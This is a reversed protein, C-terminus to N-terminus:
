PLGTGNFSVDVETDDTAVATRVNACKTNGTSDVTLQKATADYFVDLGKAMDMGAGSEKPLTVRAAETILTGNPGNPYNDPEAAQSTTGVNEVFVGIIDTVVHMEGAAYTTNTSANAFDLSEYDPSKLDLTM